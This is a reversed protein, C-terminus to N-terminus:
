NVNKHNLYKQQEKQSAWLIVLSSKRMSPRGFSLNVLRDWPGAVAAAIELRYRIASMHWASLCSTEPNIQLIKKWIQKLSISVTAYTYSLSQKRM